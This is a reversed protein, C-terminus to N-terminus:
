SWFQREVVHCFDFDFESNENHKEELLQDVEAEARKRDAYVGWVNTGSEWVIVVLYVTSEKFM